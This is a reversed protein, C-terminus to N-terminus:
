DDRRPEDKVRVPLRAILDHQLVRAENVVAIRDHAAAIGRDVIRPEPGVFVHDREGPARPPSTATANPTQSVVAGCKIDEEDISGEEKAMWDRAAENVKPAMATPIPTITWAAHEAVESCGSSLALLAALLLLALAVLPPM